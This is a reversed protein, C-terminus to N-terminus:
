LGATLFELAQYTADAILWGLGYIVIWAVASQAIIAAYPPPIM